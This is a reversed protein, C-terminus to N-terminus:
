PTGIKLIKVTLLFLLTTGTTFVAAVILNLIACLSLKRTIDCYFVTISFLPITNVAKSGRLKIFRLKQTLGNGSVHDIFASDNENRKLM